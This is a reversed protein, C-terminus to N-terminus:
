NELTEYFAFLKSLDIDSDLDLKETKIYKDLENENGLLRLLQKKKTSMDVMALPSIVYYNTTRTFNEFNRIKGVDNITVKSKRVNFQKIVKLKEGEHIVQVFSEGLEPALGKKLVLEGNPADKDEAVIRDYFLSNLIIFETDNKFLEIEQTLGNYNFFVDNYAAGYVDYLTAKKWTKFLFPSGEIANYRSIDIPQENTFFKIEKQAYASTIIHLLAIITLRYKM